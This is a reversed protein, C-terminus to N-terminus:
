FVSTYVVISMSEGGRTINGRQSNSIPPLTIGTAAAVLADNFYSTLTEKLTPSRGRLLSAAVDAPRLLHDREMSNTVATPLLPPCILPLSSGKEKEEM